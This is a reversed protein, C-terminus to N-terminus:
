SVEPNGRQSKAMDIQFGLFCLSVVRAGEAAVDLCSTDLPLLGLAVNSGKKCTFSRVSDSQSLPFRVGGM